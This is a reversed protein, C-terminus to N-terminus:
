SALALGLTKRQREAVTIADGDRVAVPVTDGVRQRDRDRVPQGGGVADSVANPNPVADPQSERDAFRVADADGSPRL